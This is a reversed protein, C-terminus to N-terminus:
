KTESSSVAYGLLIFGGVTLLPFIPSANETDFIAAALFFLPLSFGCVFAPIRRWGHWINARIIAIGVVTMLVHSFPYAMDCVFFLTTDRLHPAAYELIDFTMALLLGVTQVAFLIRSGKGDGTVRLNRMGIANCLIGCLYIIGSASALIQNSNPAGPDNTYFLSGIYLMPACLMGVTGLLRNSVVPKEALDPLIIENVSM